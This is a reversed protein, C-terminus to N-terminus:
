NGLFRISFLITADSVLRSSIRVNLRITMPKKYLQNIAHNTLGLDAWLSRAFGRTNARTYSNTLNDTAGVALTKGVSHTGFGATTYSGNFPLGTDPNILTPDLLADSEITISPSYTMRGLSPLATSNSMFYFYTHNAIAYIVNDASRGPITIRGLDNFTTSPVAVTPDTVLICRDDPGLPGIDIPDCSASIVVFGTNATGLFKVNKGFSDPEGVDAVTLAALGAGKGSSKANERMEALIANRQEIVDSKDDSKRQAFSVSISVLTVLLLILLKKM